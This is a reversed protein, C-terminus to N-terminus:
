LPAVARAAERGRAWGIETEEGAESLALITWLQGTDYVRLGRLTLLLDGAALGARDCFSGPVVATIELGIPTERTIAGISPGWAKPPVDIGREIHLRFDAIIELGHAVVLDWMDKMWQGFGSQVVKVRTGSGESELVVLIETGACPEEEKKVRLLRGPDIELETCLAGPGHEGAGPFGPLLHRRNGSADAPASRKMAEWVEEVSLEVVFTAEFDDDM